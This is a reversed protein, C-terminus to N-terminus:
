SDEGNIIADVVSRRFRRHGGLTRQSPIKGDKAWRALTKPDVGLMKAVEGPPLLEDANEM